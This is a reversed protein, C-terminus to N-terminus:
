LLRSMSLFLPATSGFQSAVTLSQHWILFKCRAPSATTGHPSGRHVFQYDRFSVFEGKRMSFFVLRICNRHRRKRRVSIGGCGTGIYVKGTHWSMTYGCRVRRQCSAVCYMGSRVLLDMMSTESCLQLTLNWQNRRIGM